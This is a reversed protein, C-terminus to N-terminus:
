HIPSRCILCGFPEVFVVAMLYEFWGFGRGRWVAVGLVGFCAFVVIKIFLIIWLNRFRIWGSRSVLISVLGPGSMLPSSCLSWANRSVVPSKWSRSRSSGCTIRMNGLVVTSSKYLNTGSIRMLRIFLHTRNRTPPPTQILGLLHPFSKLSQPTSSFRMIPLLVSLFSMQFTCFTGLSVSFTVLWRGLVWSGCVTYKTSSPMTRLAKCRISLCFWQEKLFSVISGWQSM